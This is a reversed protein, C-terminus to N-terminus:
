PFPNGDANAARNNRQRIRLFLEILNQQLRARHHLSELLGSAVGATDRIASRM